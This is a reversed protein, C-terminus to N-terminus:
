VDRDIIRERGKGNRDMKGQTGEVRVSEWSRKEGKWRGLAASSTVSLDCFAVVDEWAIWGNVGNCNHRKKKKKKVMAV